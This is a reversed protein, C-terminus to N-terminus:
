GGGSWFWRRLSAFAGHIPIAAHLRRVDEPPFVMQLIDLVSLDSSGVRYQFKTDAGHVLQMEVLNSWIAITTASQSNRKEYIQNLFRTWPTQYSSTGDFIQAYNINTGNDLLTHALELTSFPGRCSPPDTQLVHDLLIAKQKDGYANSDASIKRTAYLYLGQATIFDAFSSSRSSFEEWISSPLRSTSRSLTFRSETANYSSLIRELEDILGAVSEIDDSPHELCRTEVQKAHRLFRMNLNKLELLNASTVPVARLNALYAQCLLLDAHFNQGARATLWRKIDDAGLFDRVTRHLFNVQPIELSVLSGLQMQRPALRQASVELLDKSRANIRKRTKDLRDLVITRSAYAQRGTKYVEAIFHIDMIYAYIVSSHPGGPQLATLFLRATEEQYIRDVSHLMHRFYPELEPPFEELRKRLVSITDADTLGRVLSRIVLFVWLFVGKARSVIEEVLAQCTPDEEKLAVFHSNEELNNQVYLRIDDQTLLELYLCRDEDQGFADEFVNWPRSSVCIKVNSSCLLNKLVDILEYHDGEYEDLGDIFFCFKSDEVFNIALEHFAELLEPRTWQGSLSYTPGSEQWRSKCVTKIMSPHQRLIEFLLSRLLGEQTKQMDNGSIWFFFSAIVIKKSGAWEHLAQKTCRHECLFKMLTSKGSGAKGGIWYVNSGTRLWEEFAIHPGSNVVKDEFVWAFTKSHAEPIKSRRMGIGGFRLSDIIRQEMKEKAGEYALSLLKTSLVTLQEHNGHDNQGEQNQIAALIEAKMSDFSRERNIQM